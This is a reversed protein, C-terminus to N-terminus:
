GLKRSRRSSIVCGLRQVELKLKIGMSYTLVLFETSILSSKYRTSVEFAAQGGLNGYPEGPSGHTRNLALIVQTAM